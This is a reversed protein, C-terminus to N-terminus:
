GCALGAPNSFYLLWQTDFFALPCM